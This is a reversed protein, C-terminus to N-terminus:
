YGMIELLSRFKSLDSVQLQPHDVIISAVGNLKEPPQETNKLQAAFEDVISRVLRLDSLDNEIFAFSSSRSKDQQVGPRWINEIGQDTQEGLLSELGYVDIGLSDVLSCFQSKVSGSMQQNNDLFVLASLQPQLKKLNETLESLPLYELMSVHCEVFFQFSDHVSDLWNECDVIENTHWYDSPVMVTTFENSYYTLRWDEPEDVPLDEPFFTNLWHQQRWGYAGLNINYKL